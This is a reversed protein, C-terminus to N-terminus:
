AAEQMVSPRTTQSLVGLPCRFDKDDVAAVMAAFAPSGDDVEVEVNLFTFRGNTYTTQKDAQGFHNYGDTKTIADLVFEVEAIPEGGPTLTPYITGYYDETTAM